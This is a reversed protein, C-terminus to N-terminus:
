FSMHYKATINVSHKSFYLADIKELIFLQDGSKISVNDSLEFLVRYKEIEPIAEIVRSSKSNESYNPVLYRYM